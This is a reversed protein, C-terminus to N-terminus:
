LYELKKKMLSSLSKVFFFFCITNVIGSTDNYSTCGADAIFHWAVNSIRIRIKNECQIYRATPIGHRVYKDKKKDLIKKIIGGAGDPRDVIANM